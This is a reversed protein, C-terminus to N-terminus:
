IRKFYLILSQDNYIDNDYINVTETIFESIIGACFASTLRKGFEEDEYVNKKVTVAIIGNSVVCPLLNMLDNFGLHGTTFVGTSVMLDYREENIIRFDTTLDTKILSRYIPKGADPRLCLPDVRKEGAIKIMELSFDVGELIFYPNSKNLLEGLMGSGCGVDLIRKKNLQIKPLLFNVLHHPLAYGTEKIYNEYGNATDDYFRQLDASKTYGYATQLGLENPDKNATM